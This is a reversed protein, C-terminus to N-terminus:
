VCYIDLTQLHSLGTLQLLAQRKCEDHYVRLGLYTLQTLRGIAELCATGEATSLQMGCTLVELHQLQQLRHALATAAGTGVGQDANEIHLKTLSTLVTLALADGPLWSDDYSNCLSLDQLRTLGTLNCCVALEATEVIDEPSSYYDSEEYYESDYTFQLTRVELMLQTLSTAAAVGALIAALQQESPFDKDCRDMDSHAIKLTHLQPLLGWEPTTSAAAAAAARYQLALHQLAPLQVLQLLPQQETFDVRLSLHQLQQLELRTVPAL